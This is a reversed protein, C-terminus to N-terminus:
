NTNYFVWSSGNWAKWSAGSDISVIFAIIGSGTNDLSIVANAIDIIYAETFLIDEKMNAKM